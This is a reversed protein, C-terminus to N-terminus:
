TRSRNDLEKRMADLGYLEKVRDRGLDYHLEELMPMIETQWVLQVGNDRGYIETRMFFSPGIAHDADAVRSNLLDLLDAVDSEIGHKTLWTRLLQDVPESQPHLEIFAFRRRMAQDIQGISRDATNMTAIVFLNPPLQFQKEPSYQLFIAEDRYELLFYLEGFVKAVNARNLEDIILIYPTALNDAADEALKSFPGSVQEFALGGGSTARPRYGEVFDEYTFSPHFQVLAKAHDQGGTLHSALKRALWTKGTGPPGYLVIQKRNWLRDTVMRLWEPTVLLEEALETTIEPFSLEPAEVLPVESARYQEALRRLVSDAETLDIVYAQDALLAPLPPRLVSRDAPDDANLWRVSRRLNSRGGESETFFPRGSIEGLYVSQHSTVLVLDDERMQHLFREFEDFRQRRYSASKHGYDRGVADKLDATSIDPTVGKLQSAALSVYGGSIWQDVLNYGEVSTGRVTWARSASTDGSELGSMQERILDATMRDGQSARGNEFEVGEDALRQPIDTNRLGQHVRADSPRSGDPELVRHNGPVKVDSSALYHAVDDPSVEALEALDDFSVWNGPDVVSLADAIVHEAGSLSWRAQSRQQRVERYLRQCERRLTEADPYTDLAALGAETLTWGKRKSMWGITVANGTGFRLATEWRTQRPRIDEREYPTPSVIEEVRDRVTPYQLPQGADRLVEMATWLLEAYRVSEAM